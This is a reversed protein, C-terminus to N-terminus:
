IFAVLIKYKFFIRYKAALKLTIIFIFLIRTGTKRLESAFILRILFDTIFFSFIENIIFPRNFNIFILLLLVVKFFNAFIYINTDPWNYNGLRQEYDFFGAM